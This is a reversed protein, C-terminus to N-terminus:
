YHVIVPTGAPVSNYITKATDYQLNVCGRSGSYTYGRPDGFAHQWSADHLGISGNFPMWFTVPSEWEYEGDKDKPGRLTVNMNKFAISYVGQPTIWGKTVNGTVCPKNLVVKGDMFLYVRQGTLDVEVYTTGWDNGDHSAAKKTYKLSREVPEGGKINKIIAKAEKKQDILWGYNGGTVKVTNGNGSKFSRTKQYTDYKKALEKVYEKVKSTRIKPEMNENTRLWSAITDKDLVESNSDVKYTITGNLYKNMVDCAAAVEPSDQVYTPAVYCAEAVMDLEQSFGNLHEALKTNFADVDVTSGIDEKGPVFETGNYEPIASTPEVQNDEQMCELSAVVNQLQAEDYSVGVAAEIEPNTWLSRPWLFANQEKVLEKLEDGQKYEMSISEGSITEISGDSKKLTLSYDDVQQTMYDEVDKISKLSQDVGNVTTNFQFHSMFFFAFGLYVVLVLGVVTGLVTLLVKKWKKKGGDEFEEDDEEDEDFEESDDASLDIVGTLELADEALLELEDEDESLDIADTLSLAEDLNEESLDIIGTLELADEASLELEEEDETGKENALLELDLDFENGINNKYKKSM